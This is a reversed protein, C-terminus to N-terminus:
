NFIISYEFYDPNAEFSLRKISTYRTSSWIVEDNRILELKTIAGLTELSEVVADGLEKARAAVEDDGDQTIIMESFGNVPVTLEDNIVLNLNSNLIIM